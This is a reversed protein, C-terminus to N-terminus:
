RGEPCKGWVVTLGNETFSGYPCRGFVATMEDIFKATQPMAARNAARQAKLETARGPGVDTDDRQDQAM